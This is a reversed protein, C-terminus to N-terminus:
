ELGTANRGPKKKKKRLGNSSRAPQGLDGFVLGDWEALRTQAHSSTSQRAFPGGDACREPTTEGPRATSGGTGGVVKLTGPATCHDDSNAQKLM